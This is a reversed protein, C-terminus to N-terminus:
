FGHPNDKTVEAILDDWRKQAERLKRRSEGDERILAVVVGVLCVGYIALAAWFLVQWALSDYFQAALVTAVFYGLLSVFMRRIWANSAKM